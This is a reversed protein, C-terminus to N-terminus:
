GISVWNERESSYTMLGWNTDVPYALKGHTQYINNVYMDGKVMKYYLYSPMSSHPKASLHHVNHHAIHPSNNIISIGQYVATGLLNHLMNQYTIINGPCIYLMNKGCTELEDSAKNNVAASLYYIFIYLFFSNRRRQPIIAVINASIFIFASYMVIDRFLFTMSLNFCWWHCYKIFM